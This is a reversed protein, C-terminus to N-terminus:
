ARRAGPGRGEKLYEGIIRGHDFPYQMKLLDDYAVVKLNKADDGARPESIGRGIFVTSVTHFRPDRGPDSYVKFQRLDALELGTEEEVERLVAAELSEGYDVFGGPLAWGYPPNSREILVIGEPFEIIADVTVYPGMGLTDQIHTLYGVINQFFIDFHETDTVCVYINKIDHQAFRIFKLLEQALIKASASPPIVGKEYGFPIIAVSSFRMEAAKHLVDHYGRRVVEFDNITRDFVLSAILTPSHGPNSFLGVGDETDVIGEEVSEVVVVDVKLDEGDGKIIELEVNQIRM